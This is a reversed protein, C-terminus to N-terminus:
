RPMPLFSGIWEGPLDRLAPGGRLLALLRRVRGLARDGDVVRRTARVLDRLPGALATTVLVFALLLSICQVVDPVLIPVMVAVDHAATSRTRARRDLALAIATGLVTALVAVSTAIVLSNGATRLVAPNSVLDAYWRTTFGGWVHAQPAASFSFM